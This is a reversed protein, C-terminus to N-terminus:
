LTLLLWHWGLLWLMAQKGTCPVKGSLLGTLVAQVCTNRVSFSTFCRACSGAKNQSHQAITKHETIFTTNM